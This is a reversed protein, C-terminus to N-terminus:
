EVVTRVRRAAFAVDGDSHARLFRLLDPPARATGDAAFLGARASFEM